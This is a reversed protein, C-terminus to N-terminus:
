GFVDKIKSFFGKGSDDKNAPDFNENGRLAEIHKREESSLDKPMFVNVRIFQDGSGSNNLGNIGKGEMRLLYVAHVSADYEAALSVAYEVALASEESGDVPALVLEVDVAGSQAHEM